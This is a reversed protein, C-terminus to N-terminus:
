EMNAKGADGTLKCVKRMDGELWSEELRHKREGAIHVTAYCHERAKNEM